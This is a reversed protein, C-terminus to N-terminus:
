SKRSLGHYEKLIDDPSALGDLRVWTKGQAARLYTVPVHNMKDGRYADFAKQLAVSAELTGTYFKWQDGAGLKKAYAQLRTPTDYEPDISISLMRLKASDKGLKDQVQSFVQTTVPCIATCSTYIFQLVVARGDDLETPFSAKKGDQRVLGIAPITYPMESRKLTAATMASHDHHQHQSHDQAPAPAASQAKASQMYALASALMFASLAARVVLNRSLAKAKSIMQKTM